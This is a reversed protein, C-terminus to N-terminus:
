REKKRERENSQQFWINVSLCCHILTKIKQEKNRNFLIM